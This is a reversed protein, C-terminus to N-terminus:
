KINAWMNGVCFIRANLVEKGFTDILLVFFKIDIQIVIPAAAPGLMWDLQVKM